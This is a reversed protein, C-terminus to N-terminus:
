HCTYIYFHCYKDCCVKYLDTNRHVDRRPKNPAMRCSSKTIEIWINHLKKAYNVESIVCGICEWLEQRKFSLVLRKRGGDMTFSNKMVAEENMKAVQKM